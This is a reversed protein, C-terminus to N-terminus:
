DGALEAGPLDANVRELVMSVEPGCAPNEADAPRAVLAGGEFVLEDDSFAVTGQTASEGLIWRRLVVGDAADARCWGGGRGGNRLREHVVPECAQLDLLYSTTAAAGSTLLVLDRDLGVMRMPEVSVNGEGVSISTASAPLVVRRILGDGREVLVEVAAWRTDRVDATPRLRVRDDLGDGDIDASLWYNWVESPDPPTADCPDGSFVARTPTLRVTAECEPLDIVWGLEGVAPHWSPRGAVECYRQQGGLELRGEFELSSERAIRLLGSMFIAETRSTSARYQDGGGAHLVIEESAVDGDSFEVTLDYRGALETGNGTELDEVSATGVLSDLNPGCAPAEVGLLSWQWDQIEVLETGDFRLHRDSTLGLVMEDARVAMTETSYTRIVDGYPTSATCHSDASMLKGWLYPFSGIVRPACDHMDIVFITDGSPATQLNDQILLVDRDLGVPRLDANMLPDGISGIVGEVLGRAFTGDALSFGIELPRADEPWNESSSPIRTEFTRIAADDRAGDGDFDGGVVSERMAPDIGGEPCEVVAVPELDGLGLWGILSPVAEVRVERWDGRSCGTATLRTRGLLRTVTAAGATPQGVLRVGEGSGETARFQEGSPAECEASHQRLSAFMEDQAQVTDAWTHGPLTHDPKALADILLTTTPLEVAITRSGGRDEITYRLGDARQQPEVLPQGSDLEHVLIPPDCECQLATRDESSTNVSRCNDTAFWTAPVEFVWQDGACFGGQSVPPLDPPNDLDISAVLEDFRGEVEDGVSGFALVSLLGPSAPGADSSGVGRVDIMQALQTGGVGEYDARWSNAQRTPTYTLSALRRWADPGADFHSSLGSKSEYQVLLVPGIPPSTSAWQLVRCDVTSMSTPVEFTAVQRETEPEVVTCTEGARLPRPRGVPGLRVPEDPITLPTPAPTPTVSATPVEPAPGTVTPVETNPPAAAQELEARDNFVLAFMLSAFICVGLIAAIPRLRSLRVWGNDCSCFSFQM